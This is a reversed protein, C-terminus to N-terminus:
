FWMNPNRTVTSTCEGRKRPQYVHLILIFNAQKSPGEHTDAPQTLAESSIHMSQPFELFAEVKEHLSM